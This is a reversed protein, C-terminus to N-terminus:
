KRYNELLQSITVLELGKNRLGDILEPLKQHPFDKKRESGMHMLIISGNLTKKTNKNYNLIKNVIEDATKYIKSTTDAVWDFTDMTEEWGNGHSWGIHKYGTKAAWQLIENNYEGFPARWYPSIKKGTVVQFLHNTKVLQKYIIEESINEKTNHKYNEAFTTLHPHSWTHNGIEHGDQVLKKVTKKYKKIFQGTLFFTAKVKKNNLIDLIEQSVNNTSGGDFTLAIQKIKKSGRSFSKSLYLFSPPAYTFTLTQITQMNGDPSITKVKLTNTGRNLKINKFTFTNEKPLFAETLTTDIYLAIIKNENCQGNITITNSYVMGSTKPSSVFTESSYTTDIITEEIASKQKEELFNIQNKMEFIFFLCVLLGAFLILEILLHKNIKNIKSLPWLVIFLLLRLLNYLIKGIEKICFLFICKISCFKHDLFYIICNFCIPKFCQHCIHEAVIDPHNKCYKPISHM